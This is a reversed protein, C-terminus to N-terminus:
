RLRRIFMLKATDAEDTLLYVTDVDCDTARLVMQRLMASGIGQRQFKPVVSFNEIKAARSTVTLECGSVPVDNFYGIYSNIPCDSMYIAKQRESRRRCFDGGLSGEELALDIGLADRSRQPNNIIKVAVGAKDNLSEIRTLDFVYYGYKSVQPRHIELAQLVSANVCANTVIRCFGEKNSTCYDIEARIAALQQSDNLDDFIYTYNYDYMDPILSDRYRVGYGLKEPTSIYEIYEREASLIVDSVKESM